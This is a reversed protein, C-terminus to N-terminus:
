AIRGALYHLAADVHLLNSYLPHTFSEPSNAASGSAASLRATDIGEALFGHPEAHTRHFRAIGRLITMGACVRDRDGSREAAELCAMACEACDATRLVPDTASSRVLGTVPAAGEDTRLVFNLMGFLAEVAIEEFAPDRFHDAARFMVRSTLARDAARPVSDAMKGAFREILGRAAEVDEGLGRSDLEMFLWPVLLGEAGIEIDAAGARRLVWEDALATERLLRGVRSAESELTQIRRNGPPLADAWALMHLGIRAQDTPIWWTGERGANLWFEGTQVDRFARVPGDRQVFGDDLVHDLLGLAVKELIHNQDFKSWSYLTLAGGLASGELGPGELRALPHGDIPTGSRDVASSRAHWKGHNGPQLCYHAFRVSDRVSDVLTYDPDDPLYLVNTM